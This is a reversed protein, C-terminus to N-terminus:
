VLWPLSYTQNERAEPDAAPLQRGVEGSASLCPIPFILHMGYNMGMSLQGCRSREGHRITRRYYRSSQSSMEEPEGAGSARYNHLQGLLLEGGTVHRLCRGSCHPGVGAVYGVM